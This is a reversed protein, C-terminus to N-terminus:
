RSVVQTGRNKLRSLLTSKARILDRMFRHEKTHNKDPHFIHALKCFSRAITAANSIEAL